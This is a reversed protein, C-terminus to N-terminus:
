LNGEADVIGLPELRARASRRKARARQTPDVEADGQNAAAAGIASRSGM